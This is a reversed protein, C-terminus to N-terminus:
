HLARFPYGKQDYPRKETGNGNNAQNEHFDREENKGQRGINGGDMSHDMDFILEQPLILCLSVDAEIGV